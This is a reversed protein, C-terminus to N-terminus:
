LGRWHEQLAHRTSQVGSERTHIPMSDEHDLRQRIELEKSRHSRRHIHDKLLATDRDSGSEIIMKNEEKAPEYHSSCPSDVGCGPSLRKRNLEAPSINVNRDMEPGM